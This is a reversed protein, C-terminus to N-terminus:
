VVGYQSRYAKIGDLYKGMEGDAGGGHKELYQIVDSLTVIALVPVGFDQQVQQIASMAGETGGREQRDIAVVIGVLTAGQAQIIERCERIATGATIVDDVVVVRTGKMAAGVITGGEGHDKAEKRNFAYPVDRQFDRSLSVATTTALPIGKYAPGFIIDYEVTNDMLTSAYYHGLQALAQGTSFNGM